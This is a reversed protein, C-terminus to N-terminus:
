NKTKKSEPTYNLGIGIRESYGFYGYSLAVAGIDLFLNSGIMIELSFGFSFGSWGLDKYGTQYGAMLSFGSLASEQGFMAKTATQMLKPERIYIESGVSFTPIYDPYLSYDLSLVWHSQGFPIKIAMGQRFNVPPYEWKQIFRRPIGLNKIATGLYVFDVPNLIFGFDGVFGWSSVSELQSRVIKGCGGLSLQKKRGISKGYGVNLLMDSNRFNELENGVEDRAIDTATLYSLGVGLSGTNKGLFLSSALNYYQIFGLHSMAMGSLYYSKIIGLGAPNWFVANGDDSLATFANGMAVPRVGVGLKLFTYGTAGPQWIQASCFLAIGALLIIKRM